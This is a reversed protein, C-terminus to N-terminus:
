CAGFQKRDWYSLAEDVPLSMPQAASIIQAFACFAKCVVLFNLVMRSSFNQFESNIAFWRYLNM